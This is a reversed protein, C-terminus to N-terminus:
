PYVPKPILRDRPIGKKLEAAPEPFRYPCPVRLGTGYV